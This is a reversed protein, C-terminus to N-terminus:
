AARFESNRDPEISRRYLIANGAKGVEEIVGMKRLVYAIRQARFRQIDLHKGLSATDFPQELHMLRVLHMLDVATAFVTTDAINSLVIDQVFHRAKWRRRRKTKQPPLRWEEVEVLPVELKLNPHPFFRWFYVLEDFLDLMTGKKPSWRKGVVPGGKISQRIIQRRYVIPKVIRIRHNPVLNSIKDRFSALSAFQIEILEGDRCADIRYGDVPVETAAHSGAYINKLARHLSTEM